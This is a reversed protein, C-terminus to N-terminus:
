PLAIYQDTVTKCSRCKGIGCAYSTKAFEDVGPLLVPLVLHAWFLLIADWDNLAVIKAEDMNSQEKVLARRLSKSYPHWKM